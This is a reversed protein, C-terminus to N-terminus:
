LFLLQKTTDALSKVRNYIDKVLGDMEAQPNLMVALIKDEGFSFHLGEVNEWRYHVFRLRGMYDQSKLVMSMVLTTQMALEGARDENPLPLGPRSYFDLVEGKQILAALLIDDDLEVVTKCIGALSKTM